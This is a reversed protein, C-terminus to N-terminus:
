CILISYLYSYGALITFVIAAGKGKRQLTMAVISLIITLLAQGIRGWTIVPFGCHNVLGTWGLFAGFISLMILLINIVIKYRGSVPPVPKPDTESQEPELTLKEAKQENYFHNLLSGSLLANLLTFAIILPLNSSWMGLLPLLLVMFWWGTKRFQRQLLVWQVLVTLANLIAMLVGGNNGNVFFTWFLLWALYVLSWLLAYKQRKRLVLWQLFALLSFVIFPSPLVPFIGPHFTAIAPLYSFFWLLLFDRSENQKFQDFFWNSPKAESGAPPVQVPDKEIKVEEPPIGNEQWGHDEMNEDARNEEKFAPHSLAARLSDRLAAVGRFRDIPAKSLSREIVERAEEPTGAPLVGQLKLPESHKKMVAMPTKGGFLAEGTLAEVLVCALAYQDTAPVAEEGEWVEPAIYAPTGLIAGTHSTLGTSMMARVLGFDTLIFEGEQSRIINSPKVDRHLLGEKHAYDLASGVQELMHLAEEWALPGDEELIRDLSKGDIYRMAIFYRGEAEGMELVTAIQPHFLRAALRAEQMFRQYAAGDAVLSPKLVKLAVERELTLDRARYVDATAGSGVLEIIEYKGISKM